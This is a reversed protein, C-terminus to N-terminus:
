TAWKLDQRRWSVKSGRELSSQDDRKAAGTSIVCSVKFTKTNVPISELVRM